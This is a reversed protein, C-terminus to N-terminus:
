ARGRADVRQVIHLIGAVLELDARRRRLRRQLIPRPQGLPQGQQILGDRMEAMELGAVLARYAARKGMGIWARLQREAQRRKAALDDQAVHVQVDPM